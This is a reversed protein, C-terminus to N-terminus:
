GDRTCPQGGRQPQALHAPLLRRRAVRRSVAGAPHERDDEWNSHRKGWGFAWEPDFFTTVVPIGFGPTVNPSTIEGNPLPNTPDGQVVGDGPICAVPGICSPVSQPRFAHNTAGDFWSRNM